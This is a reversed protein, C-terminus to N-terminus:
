DQVRRLEEAHDRQYTIAYVGPGFRCPAHDDNAGDGHELTWGSHSEILPGQLATPSPLRYMTVESMDRVRHRSGRTNGPAVQSVPTEDKTANEPLRPLSWVYVDGQRTPPDGPIMATCDRQENHKINDATNQVREVTESITLTM